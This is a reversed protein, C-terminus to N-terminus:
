VARKGWPEALTSRGATRGMDTLSAEAWPRAKPPGLSADDHESSTQWNRISKGVVSDRVVGRGQALNPSEDQGRLFVTGRTPLRRNIV